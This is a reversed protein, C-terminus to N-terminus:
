LASIYYAEHRNDYRLVGGNQLAKLADRLKKYYIMKKKRKSVWLSKM